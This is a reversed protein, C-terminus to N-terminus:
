EPEIEIDLRDPVGGRGKRGAPLPVEGAVALHDAAVGAASLVLMVRAARLVEFEGIAKFQGLERPPPAQILKAKVKGRMNAKKLSAVVVKLATEGAPSIGISFPQEFLAPVAFSVRVRADDVSINAAVAGLATKLEAALAQLAEHQKGETATKEQESDMHKAVAAKLKDRESTLEDAAGRAQDLESTQAGLAKAVKQYPGIYVFGAFGLGLGALTAGALLKWGGVKQIQVVPASGPSAFSDNFGYSM